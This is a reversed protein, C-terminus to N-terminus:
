LDEGGLKKALAAVALAANEVDKLSGIHDNDISLVELQKRYTDIKTNQKKIKDEM